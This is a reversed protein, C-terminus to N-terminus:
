IAVIRGEWDFWNQIPTFIEPRPDEIFLTDKTVKITYFDDGNDLIEGEIFRDPRDGCPQFDYARVMTGIALIEREIQM